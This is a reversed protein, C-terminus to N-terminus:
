ATAEAIQRQGSGSGIAITRPRLVDPKAVILSLVGNDITAAIADPDVGQPLQFRREFRGFAREGLVWHSGEQLQPRRREGRVVLHGDLVEIELDDATLGPVDMTLVVDNDSVTADAPALFGARTTRFVSDFPVFPDFLM